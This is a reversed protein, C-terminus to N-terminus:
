YRDPIAANLRQMLEEPVARSCMLHRKEGEPMDAFHLVKLQRADEPGAQEILVSAEEEAAFMLDARRRAVMQVMQANEVTTATVTPRLQALLGDVYPGYSFREKVLVTVGPQSLLEALRRGPPELGQHSLAVTPRDQYLPKSFRAFQEREPNRFWGLACEPARNDKISLIQRNSPLKVWRFPVGAAALARAAPTATLGEVQDGAGSVAYPPRENYYVTLAAPQAAAAGGLALGLLLVSSRAPM